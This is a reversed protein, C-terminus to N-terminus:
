GEIEASSGDGRIHNDHLVYELSAQEMGGGRAVTQESDDAMSACRQKATAATSASKYDERLM